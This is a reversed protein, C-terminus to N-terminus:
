FIFDTCFQTQNDMLKLGSINIYLDFYNKKTLTKRTFADLIIDWKGMSVCAAIIM